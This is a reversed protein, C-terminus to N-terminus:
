LKSTVFVSNNLSSTSNSSSSSINPQVYKGFVIKKHFEPPINSQQKGSLAQIAANDQHSSTSLDRKPNEMPGFPVANPNRSIAEQKPASIAEALKDKVAGGLQEISEADLKISKKVQVALNGGLADKYEQPIAKKAMSGLFERAPRSGVAGTPNSSISNLDKDLKIVQTVLEDDAFATNAFFHIRLLMGFILIVLNIKYAYQLYVLQINNIKLKM